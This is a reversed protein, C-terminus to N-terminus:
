GLLAGASSLVPRRMGNVRNEFILQFKLHKSLVKACLFDKQLINKPPSFDQLDAKSPRSFLEKYTWAPKARTFRDWASIASTL